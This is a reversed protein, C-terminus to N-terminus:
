IHDIDGKPLLKLFYCLVPTEEISPDIYAKKYHEGSNIEYLFLLSISSIGTESHAKKVEDAVLDAAAAVEGIEFDTRKKDVLM